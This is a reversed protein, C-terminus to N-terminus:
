KRICGLNESRHCVCLLTETIVQQIFPLLRLLLHFTTLGPYNKDEEKYTANKELDELILIHLKKHPFPNKFLLFM